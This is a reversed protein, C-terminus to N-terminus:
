SDAWRRVLNHYVGSLRRVEGDRSGRAVTLAQISQDLDFLIERQGSDRVLSEIWFFSCLRAGATVPHVEHLSTSPYLVMDGAALKVEQVGYRTEIALEGGEYSDPSSFFLTASLDTRMVQGDPLHMIAGDVHPGYHGGHQYCNFKPPFIKKPLAASMFLPHSGLVKLLSNGVAVAVESGDVVQDNSKVQIAQSGATMAGPQWDADRELRQRYCEATEPDLVGEIVMLM